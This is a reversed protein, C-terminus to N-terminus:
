SMVAGFAVAKDEVVQRVAAVGAKLGAIVNYRDAGDFHRASAELYAAKIETSVNIKRVGSRVTERIQEMPIGSGGHLVLPVEPCRRHVARLLDMDIVPPGDQYFGHQTGVGVAMLDVGTQAVFTAVDDVTVKPHSGSEAPDFGDEVGRVEGVEGEVFVGAAHAMAVVEKTRSINEDLPLSSADIMVSDWGARVCEEILELDLCHDLHFCFRDRHEGPVLSEFVGALAKAGYTKVTSASTQVYALGEIGVIAEVVGQITEVNFVNFAGM